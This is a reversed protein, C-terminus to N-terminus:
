QVKVIFGRIVNNSGLTNSLEITYSYVGSPLTGGQSTRGDWVISASHVDTSVADNQWVTQGSLDTIRIRVNVPVSQNHNYTITVQDSFPNPYAIVRGTTIVSDNSPVLFWVQATSYNNWVDWARVRITHLGSSLGFLQRQATGGRSDTPSTEFYETLDLADLNDDLWAEIKHGIGIGTTNIGSEDWLDVILVPNSRVVDGPQFRRSDMYVAIQPGAKDEVSTIEVCAIRLAQSVGMADSSDQTNLAFLHLRCASDSLTVDKPIIFEAILQGHRIPYNGRYISGGLKWFRFVTADGLLALASQDQIQLLLDPDFLSVAGTGDFDDLMHSSLPDRISAVLRVRELACVTVAVTDTSVPTREITDLTISASPLLLRLAPDGLLLYRRDNDSYSRLKIALLLDGLTRRTGDPNRQGLEEYFRRNIAENAITYVVRSASFAGIAGGLSWQILAEAGSQVDPMDFRAFDCTAAVVFFNKAQNRMLQITRDRDFIEEHAWVRPNGHGMWNLLLTGQGNIISLMAETAAPKRNGSSANSLPYECMYVKRQIIAPLRQRLVASVAESSNVHLAGDTKGSSTPGDDAVLTVTTQWADRASQTEYQRIKEVMQQGQADSTIPLRGVAIDMVFDDGDVCGFYDETAYSDDAYSWDYPVGFRQEVNDNEYPPIWNPTTTTIGRYDYHGDGWLLVYRPPANWYHYAFSIFDRIATPDPMGAAFAAYINEVPVVAVNIASRSQRYAAYARASEIFEQPAIVIMDADGAPNRALGIDTRAIEPQRREASVYFQRPRVRQTSDLLVRFVGQQAVISLNRLLQPRRPDTIDFCLPAASFGSVAYEVVGSDSPETYIHLADNTAVFLSPYHIEVYDLFASGLPVIANQYTLRLVSRRDAAVLEIPVSLTDMLSVYESYLLTLQPLPLTRLTTGHEAVTVTGNGSMKHAVCVVYEMRRGNPAFGQLPTTLTIGTSGDFPDGLWRRGSPSSYPNIRDTELLIRQTFFQPVSTVSQQPPELAEARRGINGGWTLLYSTKTTYPNIYRRWRRLTSDFVFGRPGQAYFVISRLSGDANTEVIIPQETPENQEGDSPKESLPLGGYGYLKITPVLNPPISVGLRALQAADIAYVGEEGVSVKIYQAADDLVVPAKRRQIKREKTVASWMRLQEANIIPMARDPLSRLTPTTDFRVHLTCREIIRTRNSRADYDAVPVLLHGVPVGRAIGAYRLEVDLLRHERYLQDNIAFRLVGSDNSRDGDPYPALPLDIWRERVGTVEVDWVGSRADRGAGHPIPVALAASAIQVMPAGVQSPRTDIGNGRVWVALRGDRTLITDLTTPPLAFAVVLEQAKSSIVRFLPEQHNRQLAQTSVAAVSLAVIGHALVRVGRVILKRHM